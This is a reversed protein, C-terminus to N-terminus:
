YTNIYESVRLPQEFHLQFEDATIQSAPKGLTKSIKECLQYLDRYPISGDRSHMIIKGNSPNYPLDFDSKRTEFFNFSAIVMKKFAEENYTESFQPKLSGQQILQISAKEAPIENLYVKTIGQQISELLRTKGSGNKGTLTIIPGTVDVTEELKFGKHELTPELKVKM